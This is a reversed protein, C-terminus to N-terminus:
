ADSLDAATLLTLAADPLADMDVDPGALRLSQREIMQEVLQRVSRGNAFGSGRDIKAVADPLAALLDPAPQYGQATLMVLCIRTLEDATYDAFNITAGFRSRLGPNADLFRDMEKPYGAAIVILDDRHNEMQVLLEAVAEKGYDSSQAQVLDYAEDIFLLGGLARECVKRTKQATGGVFDAVFDPRGTEVLHGSSLV